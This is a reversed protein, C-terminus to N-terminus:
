HKGEKSSVLANVNQMLGGESSDADSVRSRLGRSRVFTFGLFKRSIPWLGGDQAPYLLICCGIQAESGM